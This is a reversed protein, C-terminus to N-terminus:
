GGISLIRSRRRRLKDQRSEVFMQEVQSDNRRAGFTFRTRGLPRRRRRLSALKWMLTHSSAAREFNRLVCVKLEALLASLSGFAIATLYCCSRLVLERRVEVVIVLVSGSEMLKRNMQRHATKRANLGSCMTREYAHKNHAAVCFSKM